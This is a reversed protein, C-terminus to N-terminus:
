TDNMKEGICNLRMNDTNCSIYLYVFNFFISCMKVESWGYLAIIVAIVVVKINKEKWAKDIVKWYGIVYIITPIIGIVLLMLIYTNDITTTNNWTDRVPNHIGTYSLQIDQGWLTLRNKTLIFWNLFIRNTILKDVFQAIRSTLFLKAFLLNLIFFIPVILKTINKIGGKNKSIFHEYSANLLPYLLLVILATKSKTVMFVVISYLLDYGVSKKTNKYSKKLLFLSSLYLAAQNKQGFGLQFGDTLQYQFEQYNITCVFYVISIIVALLMSKYVLKALKSYDEGKGAVILLWAFLFASRGSKFRGYTLFITVTIIIYFFKATYKKQLIVYLLLMYSLIEVINKVIEFIDNQSVLVIDSSFQFFSLLVLCFGFVNIHKADFNRLLQGNMRIEVWKM